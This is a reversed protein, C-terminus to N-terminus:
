EVEAIEKIRAVFHEVAIPGDASERDLTNLAQVLRRRMARLRRWDGTLDAPDSPGQVVTGPVGEEYVKPKTTKRKQKKSV